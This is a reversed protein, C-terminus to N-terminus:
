QGGEYLWIGPQGADTLNPVPLSFIGTGSSVRYGDLSVWDPVPGLHRIGSHRDRHGAITDLVASHRIQSSM